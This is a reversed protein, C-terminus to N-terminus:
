LGTLIPRRLLTVCVQLLCPPSHKDCHKPIERGERRMRRSSECCVKRDINIYVPEYTVHLICWDHHCTHSANMLQYPGYGMFNDLHLSSRPWIGQTFWVLARAFTTAHHAYHYKLCRVKESPRNELDFVGIVDM